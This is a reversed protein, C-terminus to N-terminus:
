VPISPKQPYSRRCTNPHTQSNTRTSTLPYFASIKRVVNHPVLCFNEISGKKLLSAIKKVKKKESRACLRIDRGQRGGVVPTYM